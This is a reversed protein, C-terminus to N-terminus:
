VNCLWFSYALFAAKKASFAERHVARECKRFSKIGQFLLAKLYHAAFVLDNKSNM